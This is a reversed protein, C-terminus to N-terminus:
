SAVGQVVSWAEDDCIEGSTVENFFDFETRSIYGNGDLDIQHFISRFAVKADESLTVSGEENQTLLPMTEYSTDEEEPAKLHCGSTFPLLAYLGAELDM